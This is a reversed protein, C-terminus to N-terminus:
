GILSWLGLTLAPIACVLGLVVIIAAVFPTLERFVAAAPTRSIQATIFVLIGVPPTVGGLQLNIIMIIGVQVPDFGAATLLPLFLPAAILSAPTLDLFTGAVFLTLVVVLILAAPGLAYDQTLGVLQQPMGDAILIWAFPVSAAILFGILASDVCCEALSRGLHRWSYERFVFKGLVFAWVLAIVGAETAAAIGFRICSLM